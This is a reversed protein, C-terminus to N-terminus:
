VNVGYFLDDEDYLLDSGIELLFELVACFLYNYIIIVEKNEKRKEGPRTYYHADFPATRHM